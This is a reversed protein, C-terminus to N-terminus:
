EVPMADVLQNIQPLQNVIWAQVNDVQTVRTPTEPENGTLRARHTLAKMVIAAAAENGTKAEPYYYSLLGDIRSLDIARNLELSEKLDEHIAQHVENILQRCLNLSVGMQHAVDIINAGNIRADWARLAAETPEPGAEAIM